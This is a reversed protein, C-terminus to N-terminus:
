PEDSGGLIVAITLCYLLLLFSLIPPPPHRRERGGRGRHCGDEKGYSKLLGVYGNATIDYTALINTEFRKIFNTEFKAVKTNPFFQHGTKENMISPNRNAALENAGKMVIFKRILPVFLACM